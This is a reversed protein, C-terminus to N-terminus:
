SDRPSPSTYLLCNECQPCNFPKDGTHTRMHAKLKSQCPFHRHCTTCTHLASSTVETISISDNHSHLLPQSPLEDRLNDDSICKDVDANSLMVRVSCVISPNIYVQTEGGVDRSASDRLEVNENNGMDLLVPMRRVGETDIEASYEQNEEVKMLRENLIVAGFSDDFVDVYEWTLQRSIMLYERETSNIAMM